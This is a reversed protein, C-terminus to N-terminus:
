SGSHGNDKSSQHCKVEDIGIKARQEYMQAYRSRAKFGDLLEHLREDASESDHQWGKVEGQTAQIPLHRSVWENEKVIREVLSQALDSDLLFASFQRCMFLLNQSREAFTDTSDGNM